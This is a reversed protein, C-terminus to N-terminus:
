IIIYTLCTEFIAIVTSLMDVFFISSRTFFFSDVSTVVTFLVVALGYSTLFILRVLHMQFSTFLLPRLSSVRTGDWCRLASITISIVVFFFRFYKSFRNVSVWNKTILYRCYYFWFLSNFLICLFIRLSMVSNIVTLLTARFCTAM